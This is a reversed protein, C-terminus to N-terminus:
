REVPLSDFIVACDSIVTRYFLARLTARLMRLELSASLTACCNDCFTSAGPDLALGRYATVPRYCFLVFDFPFPVRPEAPHFTTACSSARRMCIVFSPLDIVFFSLSADTSFTFGAGVTMSVGTPM